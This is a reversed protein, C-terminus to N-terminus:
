LSYILFDHLLFESLPSLSGQSEQEIPKGLVTPNGGIELVEDILADRHLSSAMSKPYPEIYFVETIGSAIIHKACNHCPYTTCYLSANLTSIGTRSCALVASMEAHVPRGYETIDNICSKKMARKFEQDDVNEKLLPRLKKLTDDLLFNLRNKNADFGLWSDRRDYEDDAWYQGGGFRPVDNVGIGCIEGRQSVVVAGVQRSLDGSRLASAQALFMYYESQFPSIKPAGHLADFFRELAQIISNDDDSGDVLFDAMQFTDRTQQGFLTADDTSFLESNSEDQDREILKLAEENKSQVGNTLYSIQNKLKESVGILFFLSGYVNRLFRVEEPHKLQHLVFVAREEVGIERARNIQAASYKALIAADAAKTRVKTGLSMKQGMRVIKDKSGTENPFIKQVLDLIDIVNASINFKKLSRKLCDEFKELNAGSPAVLGLVIQRSKKSQTAM